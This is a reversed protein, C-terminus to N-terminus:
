LGYRERLFERAGLSVEFPDYVTPDQEAEVVYWGRYGAADLAGIVPDFNVAGVGPTCFVNARVADMFAWGQRQAQFLVSKRVDKLHVYNVRHAWLAAVAGPNGGGYAIHGTDLCYGVLQPDTLDFLQDIEEPTQLVTGAHPHVSLIVGQRRAHDGVVHLADVLRGWGDEDLPAVTARPGRRDWHLSNGGEAVLAFDAGAAKCFDVHAKALAVEEDVHDEHVFNTWRYAAALSLGHAELVQRLQEPDQPYRHSMETGEYGLKAMEALVQEFSYGAGWERVDDNFWGIAAVGVRSGARM